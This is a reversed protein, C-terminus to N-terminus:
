TSEFVCVSNVMLLSILQLGDSFMFLLQILKRVKVSHKEEDEEHSFYELLNYFGSILDTETDMECLRPSSPDTNM